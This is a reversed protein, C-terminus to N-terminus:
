DELPSAVNPMLTPDLLRNSRVNIPPHAPHLQMCIQRSDKESIRHFSTKGQQVFRTTAQERLSLLLRVSRQPPPRLHVQIDHLGSLSRTLSPEKAGIAIAETSAHISRPEHIARHIFPSVCVLRCTDYCSRNKYQTILFIHKRLQHAALVLPPKGSMGQQRPYACVLWVSKGTQATLNYSSPECGYMQSFLHSSFSINVVCVATHSPTVHNRQKIVSQSGRLQCLDPSM